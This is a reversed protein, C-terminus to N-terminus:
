VRFGLYYNGNGKGTNSLGGSGGLLGEVEDVMGAAFKNKKPPCNAIEDVMVTYGLDWVRPFHEHAHNDDSLEQVFLM